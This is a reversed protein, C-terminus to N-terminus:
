GNRLARVSPCTSWHSIDASDIELVEGTKRNWAFHRDDPTVGEVWPWVTFARWLERGIAREAQRLKKPGLKGEVSM